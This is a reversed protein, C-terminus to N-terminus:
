VAKDETIYVVRFFQLNCAHNCTISNEAAPNQFEATELLFPSSLSKELINTPMLYTDGVYCAVENEM